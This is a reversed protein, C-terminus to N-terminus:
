CTKSHFHEQYPKVLDFLKPEICSDPLLASVSRELFDIYENEREIIPADVMWVFAHIYPIGRDQFEIRLTYYKTEGLRGYM